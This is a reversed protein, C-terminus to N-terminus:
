RNKSKIEEIILEQINLPPIGNQGYWFFSDYGEYVEKEIHWSDPLYSTVANCYGAVTVNQDPWLQRIKIGYSTVPERSLGVLKWSGINLTQVYVPLEQRVTNSKYRHEMLDAWRLDKDTYVTSPQAAVKERFAEIAEPTMPKIAILVSDVFTHLAGTVEEMDTSLVGLVDQALENGTKQYDQVVPNIDGACGQLFLNYESGTRTEVVNRAVGPFNATLTFSEAGENRFVPHCGAFFLTGMLQQRDNLVKVVDLTRDVPGESKRINDRRNVGINTEGRGFYITAPEMNAIAKDAVALVNKGVIKNLYTSDPQQYFPAWTTWAQTVPAFHTHSANILIADRDINHKSAIAKKMKQTFSFDIGCVDLTIIVVKKSNHQIAAAGAELSNGIKHKGVFLHDNNDLAYVRDETAALQKIKIKYTHDNHRGIQVKESSGDQRRRVKWLRDKTDSFIIDEKYITMAVIDESKENPVSKMKDRERNSQFINRIDTDISDVPEWTLSFRGEAPLGYGALALGFIDDPPDIDAKAFGVQYGIRHQAPATLCLMSLFLIVIGRHVKMKTNNRRFYLSNLNMDNNNFNGNLSQRKLAVRM